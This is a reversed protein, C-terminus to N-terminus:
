KQKHHKGKMEKLERREHKPMVLTSDHKREGRQAEAGLKCVGHLKKVDRTGRSVCHVTIYRLYPDGPSDHSGMTTLREVKFRLNRLENQIDIV